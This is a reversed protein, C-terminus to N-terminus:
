ARQAQLPCPVLLDLDSYSRLAADPYHAAVEPGKLVILPGDHADRVRQLLVPATLTAVVSRREDVRLEAPVARRLARWRRGALLHLRHARLDDLSAARDVLREVATWIHSTSSAM